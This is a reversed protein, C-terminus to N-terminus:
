ASRAASPPPPGASRAPGADLLPSAALAVLTSLQGEIERDIAIALARAVDLLGDAMAARHDRLLRASTLAGVALAPLLALLLLGLLYCRLGPSGSLRRPLFRHPWSRGPRFRRPWAGRASAPLPESPPAPM